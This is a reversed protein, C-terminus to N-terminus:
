DNDEKKLCESCVGKYYVQVSDVQHGCTEAKFEAMDQSELDMISKCKKCYFHVHPKTEGDYCVRHEDITIMQAANNESLLRLTNYVTTRSLTPIKQYLGKYVDEVTPHTRHDLLYQMIAMRQVSPKVGNRVLRNYAEKEFM